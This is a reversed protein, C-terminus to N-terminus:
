QKFRNLFLSLHATKGTTNTTCTGDSKLVKNEHELNAVYMYVPQDNRSPDKYWGKPIGPPPQGEGMAKAFAIKGATAVPDNCEAVFIQAEAKFTDKQSYSEENIHKVWRSGEVFGFGGQNFDDMFSKRLGIMTKSKGALQGWVRAEKTNPNAEMCAAVAQQQYEASRERKQKKMAPDSDAM